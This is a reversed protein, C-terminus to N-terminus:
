CKPSRPARGHLLVYENTRRAVVRAARWATPMGAMTRPFATNLRDKSKLHQQRLIAAPSSVDLRHV